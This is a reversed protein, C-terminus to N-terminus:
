HIIKSIVVDHIISGDYVYPIVVSNHYRHQWIVRYYFSHLWMWMAYSRRPFPHEYGHSLAFAISTDIVDNDNAIIGALYYCEVAETPENGNATNQPARSTDTRNKYARKFFPRIISHCHGDTQGDTRGDSNEPSKKLMSQSILKFSPIHM